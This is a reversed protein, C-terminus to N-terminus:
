TVAQASIVDVPRVQNVLFCFTSWRENGNRTRKREREYKNKRERVCVYLMPADFVDVAVAFSQWVVPTTRHKRKTTCRSSTCNDTDDTEVLCKMGQKECQLAFARQLSQLSSGAEFLAHNCM